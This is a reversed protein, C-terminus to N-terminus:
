CDGDASASGGGGDSSSRSRRERLFGAEQSNVGLLGYVGVAFIGAMAASALVMGVM